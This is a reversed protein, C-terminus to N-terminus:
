IALILDPRRDRLGAAVRPPGGPAWGLRGRHALTVVCCVCPIAPILPHHPTPWGIVIGPIMLAIQTAAVAALVRAIVSEAEVQAEFSGLAGPGGSNGSVVDRNEGQDAHRSPVPDFQPDLPVGLQPM